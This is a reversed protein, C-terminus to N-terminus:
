SDEVNSTVLLLIGKYPKPYSYCTRSLLSVSIKKFILFDNTSFNDKVHFLCWGSDVRHKEKEQFIIMKMEKQVKKSIKKIIMKMM